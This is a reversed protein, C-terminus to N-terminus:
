RIVSRSRASLSQLLMILSFINKGAMPKINTLLKKTELSDTLGFRCCTALKAITSIRATRPRIKRFLVLAHPMTQSVGQGAKGPTARPACGNYAGTGCGTPGQAPPPNPNVPGCTFGGGDPMEQMGAPCPNPAEAFMPKPKSYPDTSAGPDFEPVNPSAMRNPTHVTAHLGVGSAASGAARNASQSLSQTQPSTPLMGTTGPSCAALASTALLVM